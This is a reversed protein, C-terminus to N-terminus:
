AAATVRDVAAIVAAAGDEATVRAALAKATVAYSPDEVAQRILAALPEATLDRLRIAGPSVGLRGLRAAWFPQDAIVPVGVAPVAARVGAGTTGAGCHHVVAAMRPFLWDHPASGIRLIDDGAVDLGAWGAQVVARVGASRVAAAVVEGISGGHGGAMSGFGVFVPAPGAALFSVLEAPPTWSSEAPWWYGVVEIGPRWDAPRPVIEPSFGHLLPWHRDDTMEIRVAGVGRAPLGLTRCFDKLPGDLNNPIRALLRILSRNGWKGLSRAGYAAPAFEETPAGPFLELGITPISMARGVLYGHVQAARQLLLVDAGECAPVIGAAVDDMLQRSLQLNVKIGRLGGGAEAWEANAALLEQINGPIVRFECGTARVTDAFIRQTAIAVDHGASRLRMALGTFPAIDGRSGVAVIVIKM